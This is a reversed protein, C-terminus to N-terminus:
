WEVTNRDGTTNESEPPSSRFTNPQLRNANTLGSRFSASKTTASTPAKLWPVRDIVVVRFGASSLEGDDRRGRRGGRGILFDV